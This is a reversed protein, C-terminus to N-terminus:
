RARAATAASLQRLVLEMAVITAIGALLMLLMSDLTGETMAIFLMWLLFAQAVPGARCYRLDLYKWGLVSVAGTLLAGAAIAPMGAVLFFWGVFGPALLTNNSEKMPHIVYTLYGAIGNKSNIVDISHVGLPEAGLALQCWLSEIGPMRFLVFKLGKFFQLFLNEGSLKLAGLLADVHSLGHILRIQRYDTMLPVALFAAAAALGLLVKETRRLKVGGSLVLFVLLLLVLLLSSRSNRLLMDTVGHTLLVLIGARSVAFRGGYEALYICLLLGLPLSVTRAYFILGNLRFPLAEAASAGMEGIKYQYSVWALALMLTVLGALMWKSVIGAKHRDVGGSGVSEFQGPSKLFYLLSATMGSFCAFAVTSFKFAELLAERNAIMARFPNWPLMREVPWPDVTIWYFRVFYGMVLLVLAFWAAVCDRGFNLQTLIVVCSILALVSYASYEFIAREFHGATVLYGAVILLPLLWKIRSTNLQMYGIM